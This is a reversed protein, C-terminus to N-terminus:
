SPPRAGRRGRPISLGTPRPGGSAIIERVVKLESSSPDNVLATQSAFVMTPRTTLNYPAWNGTVPNSPNGTRSFAVWASAIQAGLRDQEPGAGIYQQVLPNSQNYFAFGVEITRRAGLRGGQIPTGWAMFYVFAPAGGQQVKREAQTLANMRTGFDSTIRFLLRSPSLEPEAARYADIVALMKDGYETVLREKLQADTIGFDEESANIATEGATNGIIMPVSRSLPPADPDFPHRPLYVGDVVPGFNGGVKASADLLREAPITRLRAADGPAVGLEALLATATKSAYERTQSRLTSGSEVIAKHFLGAAAPMAMLTSVKGGGGSQGFITVNGPDGGFQAINDRVWKLAEIIDLMGVNGSGAFASRAVDALHLYGFTNLRHTVTVVVVDGFAALNKGDYAVTSGSGTTFGGGHCWFMVPRKEGDNIAPTFVNVTLCDEGIEPQVVWATMFGASGGRQMSAAGIKLADRVGQWSKLPIPPKFRNEATQPEAYRVGLFEYARGVRRGRLQGQMTRVVADGTQGFLIRPWGAAFAAAAVGAKLVARRSSIGSETSHGTM